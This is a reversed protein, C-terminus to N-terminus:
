EVIGKNLKETNQVSDIIRRKLENTFCIRCNCNDAHEEDGESCGWVNCKDAIWEALEEVTEIYPM